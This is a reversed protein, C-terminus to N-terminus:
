ILKASGHPSVGLVGHEGDAIASAILQWRGKNARCWCVGQLMLQMVWKNVKRIARNHARRYSEFYCRNRISYFIAAESSSTALHEIFSKRQEHINWSTECEALGAGRVLQIAGGGAVVRYTFELDDGYLVFREDPLGHKQIVERHLLLGSYPAYPLLEHPKHHPKWRLLRKVIKQPIEKVHFGLFGNNQGLSEYPQHGPRYALVMCNNNSYRSALDQRALILTKLCGSTLQNDDDLLLILECGFDCALQIGRKFGPASGQNSDFRELTLWDGFRKRLVGEVPEVSGNDIVVAHHVDEALASELASLVYELRQGYTV